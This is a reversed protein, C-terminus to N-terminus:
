FIKFKKKKKKLYTPIPSPVYAAPKVISFALTSTITSHGQDSHLFRMQMNSDGPCLVYWFPLLSIRFSIGKLGLPLLFMLLRNAFNWVHILRVEWPQRHLISWIWVVVINCLCTPRFISPDYHRKYGYSIRLWDEWPQRHLNSEVM